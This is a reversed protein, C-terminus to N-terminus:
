EEPNELRGMFLIAESAQDRIMFIFPHDARFIPTKQAAASPAKTIVATAAAAETGKESVEIEAEHIVDAIALNNNETIGSFNAQKFDFASEIGLGKLANVLKPNSRMTFKPFTVAVKQNKLQSLWANLTEPNLQNEIALLGQQSDPLFVLMSLQGDGYPLEIVQKDDIKAYRFKGKRNMLQTEVSKHDSVYFLGPKTRKEEFPLNWQGQFYLANTLVLETTPTLSGQPLLEGIRNETNLAVWDNITKRATEVEQFNLIEAEAQYQDRTIKSFSDRLKISDSAWLRNALKVDLSDAKTLESLHLQLDYMSQHINEDHLDLNLAEAIENKTSGEAGAGTMALAIQLSTPSFCLNGPSTKLHQYLNMGFTDCKPLGGPDVPPRTRIVKREHTVPNSKETNCATHFVLISILLWLSIRTSTPFDFM